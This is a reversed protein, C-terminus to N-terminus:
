INGSFQVRGESAGFGVGEMWNGGVRGAGKSISWVEGREESLESIEM